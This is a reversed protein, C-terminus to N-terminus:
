QNFFKIENEIINYQYNNYYLPSQKFLARKARAQEIEMDSDKGSDDRMTITDKDDGTTPWNGQEEAATSDVNVDCSFNKFM